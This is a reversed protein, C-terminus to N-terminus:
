PPVPMLSCTLPIKAINVTIIIFITYNPTKLAQIPLLFQLRRAPESLTNNALTDQRHFDALLIPRLFTLRCSLWQIKFEGREDM